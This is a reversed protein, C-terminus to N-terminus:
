REYQSCWRFIAKFLLVVLHVLTLFSAGTVQEGIGITGGLNGLRDSFTYRTDIINMEVKQSAFNVHVIIMQDLRNEFNNRKKSLSTKEKGEMNDFSDRLEESWTLPEITNNTDLLYERLYKTTKQYFTGSYFKYTRKEEKVRTKHYEMFECDGKCQPCINTDVTAQKIANSFCTRGFVNCEM